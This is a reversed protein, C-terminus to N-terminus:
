QRGEEQAVLRRLQETRTRAMKRAFEPAYHLAAREGAV